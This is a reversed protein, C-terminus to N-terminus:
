RQLTSIDDSQRSPAHGPLASVEIDCGQGAMRAERAAIHKDVFSLRGTTKRGTPQYNSRKGVRVPRPPLQDQMAKVLTLMESLRKNEVIATHVIRQEKDFVRHPLPMGKWRAEFRGDPFAYTDVYKGALGRSLETEELIIRRRDYSFALQAGVYRRDRWCLIEDLRHPPLNLPRHEDGEAAPAKAFRLNHDAMFGPLFANGSAMDSIGALRLEKVLRDQLTRNAREVRGKAQSSNACIIEINLESLARGFQTMRDGEHSDQRAVRFVTHKDSYFAVPKGHRGLYRELAAFYAETTESPVFQMEMLRSTADDIFVLLTCPPGRDEFWRHDSGDIQILEGFHERRLRPRHFRRRQARSLWLGAEKMWHRVTERSVKLAHREALKEAALTPGFDAYNERILALAYDRVGDRIHNNSRRGRAKHRLAPAGEAEFLVMLRQVQRPSLALLVAASAMSATGDRVRSLVEIRHLERESMLVLGM